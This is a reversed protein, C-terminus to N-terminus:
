SVEFHELIVKMMHDHAGQASWYFKVRSETDWGAAEAATDCLRLMEPDTDLVSLWVKPKSKESATKEATMPPTNRQQNVKEPWSTTFNSGYHEHRGSHKADKHCRLDDQMLDRDVADCQGAPYEASSIDKYIGGGFRGCRGCVTRGEEIVNTGERYTRDRTTTYQHETFRCALRDFM